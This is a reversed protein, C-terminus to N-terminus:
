VCPRGRLRVARVDREPRQRPLHRRHESCQSAVRTRAVVLDRRRARLADAHEVAESLTM